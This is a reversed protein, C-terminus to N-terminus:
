GYRNVSEQIKKFRKRDLVEFGCASKEAVLKPKIDSSDFIMVYDALDFYIQFMNRLARRFRRNVTARPINHGGMKVRIAIRTAALRPISIWLFFIHVKYGAAKMEAILRAYHLGSLTTEVGFTARKRIRERIQQLVIRGASIAAGEVKFPSLGQAM